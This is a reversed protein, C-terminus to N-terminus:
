PRPVSYGRLRVRRDPCGVPQRLTSSSYLSVSFWLSISSRAKAETQVTASQTLVKAQAGASVNTKGLQMTESISAKPRPTTKAVIKMAIAVIRRAEIARGIRFEIQRSKREDINTEQEIFSTSLAFSAQPQL